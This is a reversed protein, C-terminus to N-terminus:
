EYAGQRERVSTVLHASITPTVESAPHRPLIVERRNRSIWRRAAVCELMASRAVRVSDECFALESIPADLPTVQGIREPGIVAISMQEEHAVAKELETEFAERGDLKV